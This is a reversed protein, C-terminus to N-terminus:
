RRHPVRAGEIRFIRYLLNTSTNAFVTLLHAHCTGHVVGKGFASFTCALQGRQHSLGDLLLGRCGQAKGVVQFFGDGLLFVPESIITATAPFIIRMGPSGFLGCASRM